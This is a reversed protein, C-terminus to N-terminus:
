RWWAVFLGICSGCRFSPGPWRAPCICCCFSPHRSCMCCAPGCSRVFGGGSIGLADSKKVLDIILAVLLLGAGVQAGPVVAAVAVILHLLYSIWGVTKLSDQAETNM